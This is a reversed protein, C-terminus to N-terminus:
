LIWALNKPYIKIALCLQKLNQKIFRGDHEKWCGQSLQMINGGVIM